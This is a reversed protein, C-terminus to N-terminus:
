FARRHPMIPKSQPRPLFFLRQEKCITLPTYLFTTLLDVFWGQLVSTAVSICIVFFWFISHYFSARAKAECSYCEYQPCIGLSEFSLLYLCAKSALCSSPDGTWLDILLIISEFEEPFINWTISPYEVELDCLGGFLMMLYKAPWCACNFCIVPFM